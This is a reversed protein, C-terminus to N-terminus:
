GLPIVTLLGMGYAKERGLGHILTERIKEVDKIMLVGEFAVRSLRVRRKHYLIPWDRSTIDFNASGDEGKLITFGAKEARDLLWEKQQNVTIHPYVKGNTRYTPNATLRFRLMQNDSLNNLFPQYDKTEATKEVGFEALRNLNPKDESLLLLYKRGNLIDIRWLHRLREKKSIEDPFCKEVWNHFAGLHSLEKTKQRNNVDIEVRSLYM